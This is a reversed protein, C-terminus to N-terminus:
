RRGSRASGRPRSSACRSRPPRARRRGGPPAPRRAELLRHLHDLPQQAGVAREAEVALVVLHVLVGERGSRHLLGPGGSMMPPPPLRTRDKAARWASMTLMLTLRRSPVPPASVARRRWARACGRLLDAQTFSAAPSRKSSRSSLERMPKTMTVSSAAPRASASPGPRRCRAPRRAARGAPGSRSARRSPRPARTAVPRTRSRRSTSRTRRRPSGPGRPSGLQGPVHRDGRARPTPPWRCAVALQAALPDEGDVRRGDPGLAVRRQEHQVAERRRREVVGGHEVAQAAPPATRRNSM